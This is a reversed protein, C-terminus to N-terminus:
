QMKKFVKLAALCLLFLGSMVALPAYTDRSWNNGMMALGAILMLMGIGFTFKRDRSSFEAQLLHSRQVM